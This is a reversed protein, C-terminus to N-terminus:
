GNKCLRIVNWSLKPLNISLYKDMITTNKGMYPVVKIPSHVTNSAKGDEHEFIIHEKVVYNSFGRIDCELLMSDSMDRNVAFLTVEDSEENVVVVADMFPVDTYDKSDYVPSHIIPNLV